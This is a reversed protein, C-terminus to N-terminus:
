PICNLILFFTTVLRAPSVVLFDAEVLGVFDLMLGKSPAGSGNGINEGKGIM